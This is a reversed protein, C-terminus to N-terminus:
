KRTRNPLPVAISAYDPIFRHYYGTLSLLSRVQKKTSPVPFQKVAQLKDSEPYVMGGGVIHGLYTCQAMAFQCKALKATLGAEHLKSLVSEIHQLNYLFILVFGCKCGLESEKLEPNHWKSM